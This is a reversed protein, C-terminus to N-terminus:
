TNSFAVLAQYKKTNALQPAHERVRELAQRLGYVSRAPAQGVVAALLDLMRDPSSSYLADDTTSISYISTHHRADESRIFPVIIEAAEPFAVGSARLIHVLKFTSASTQLEVDLPWISQFVPGVVGRWKSIKEDPKAHHMETALRHGVSVLSRVGAQRLASRAETATIPYNAGDSQNAIMIAALWGAFAQLEEDSRDARGFLALFPSKTLRFLESSGVYSAYKRASWAAAADPSSWTFLPIIREKTWEPARDFLFSVEAALRVRALRGFEGAASILRDLRARLSEPLERDDPRKTLKKLLVEALRGSPHNLSATLDDSMMAGAIEQSSAEAIRDWLPWLVNEDLTKPAQNLWWSADTAIESFSDKPWELLLQAVRKVDDVDQLKPASWLFPHWAWAPWQGAAAQAALGRMARPADAQCLAQWADGELFGAEDAVKKAAAILQADPVASLKAPNGVIARSGEHWIHFGALKKPRLEWDPWRKRIDDFVAQAHAGLRVGNRDLHGLLDFRCRDVMQQQDDLFCDVPPGKTIRGEIAQQQDPGFDHWRADILRYVEVSSNTLFLEHDPLTMLICAAIDPPVAPDAAAFVALRRMLQFPSARWLELFALALKPDKRGLRTWVDATVRVIPFFGTRYANQEHAGVSPVDRDSLGYGFNSEVGAETADELATSLANTLLRLLKDDLAAPVNDPWASLVDDDTVGDEIEYDISILDTPREPEHRNEEDDHLSFRKGVRIKPKLAHSLREILEASQEGRKIRPAIDFWNDRLAGRKGTRMHRIILRWCMMIVSPLEEKQNLRFELVDATDPGFFRINAAVEQIADVEAFNKEIWPTLETEANILKHEVLMPLWALSPNVEAIVAAADGRTLFFRLQEREFETADKPTKKSTDRM